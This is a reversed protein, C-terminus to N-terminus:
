FVFKLKHLLLLLLFVLTCFYKGQWFFEIGDAWTSKNSSINFRCQAADGAFVEACGEYSLKLKALNSYTSIIAVVLLAVMFFVLALILNNQYNTGLVWLVSAILLFIFGQRTPFIFLNSHSLTHQKNGPIRRDLWHQFRKRFPRTFTESLSNFIAM